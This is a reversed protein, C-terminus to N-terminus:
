SRGVWNATVAVEQFGNRVLNRYSSSPRGELLEGTETLLVDCGLARARRIREGLLVSQAGKGRHEALTAAWGVYGAGEAVFMAAASVPEDGDLALFCLWGAESERSFDTEVAEPLGYGVRVIHAFAAGVRRWAAHKSRRALEPPRASPAVAVYFATGEGMATLVADVEDETAAVDVGLGVARNLMPAEPAAPYRMMVAGGAEVVVPAVRRYAEVVVREERTV